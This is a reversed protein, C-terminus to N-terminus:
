LLFRPGNLKVASAADGERTRFAQLQIELQFVAVLGNKGAKIELTM